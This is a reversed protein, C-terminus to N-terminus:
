VAVEAAAWQWPAPSKFIAADVEDMLAITDQLAAAMKRYQDLDDHTLKRGRRDKLWKDMPQYGGVRFEWVEPEIGDFYQGRKNNRPVNASIYVRGREVPASEGSPTQGPGYYKPYSKEVLNESNDGPVPFSVSSQGSPASELLHAETLKGGLDVLTRFLELDDVPPVRPFDARLFQDYRQRYAPSHFVAYIYYFVDEPGFTERLDGEGDTIFRLGLRRELDATFRPDLNPQRDGRRYLGQEISQESPYTYLPFLYNVEKLSVSHHQIIHKSVFIHQLGDQIEISRTTSLAINDGELMCRMVANAPRAMFGNSNGTYYTYRTDFPRYQIPAISKDSIERRSLDTQASDVRWSQSDNGLNYKRRAEDPPLSVFDRVVTMVDNSSWQVTLGDRGTVIGVSKIPMIETIRPWQEYEARLTDDWPKFRYDPSEPDLVTWATTSIDSASLSEYKAEREGYLESHRVVAPGSKDPEKVFIAIAVGQQIDFVNEDAGGDPARERIRSNGHLDLLYIDTFTDMLQQRMGRFTPNDLYGHNTVFALIGAGTKHIRHQGFRIFKVYDDQLWKPQKEGLGKGDVQKYDEILEGIWTLKGGKRSVNASHGSYPPNGLVVMIPMDRKIQAASNAEDTIIRYSGSMPVQMEGEELSNTLYIGLRESNAFDYVWDQRSEAPLDQGALQMGLKLHAMAYPAMLLEFGFLRPLLHKKVYGDWMGANNASRYHERIHDVVAYLFSGTGCAPDLVLVRHSQKKVIKEENGDTKLTEYTVQSYDALGDPCNFRERLLWDVSRVIYSVVPEPTYYVGRRERLAPDYAALFTEYFHLVPDQRAARKGFNALIADMDANDLLLALDNLFGAFPEKELEPGPVAYFVNRIFPNTAPIQGAADQWRFGGSGHNVRAAFLGYALTQAFMDAFEAETLDPILVRKSETFLDTVYTSLELQRFGAEVVDRILHTLRSMRRALEEPSTVPEPSRQLFDLLLAETEAIGSNSVVLRGNGDLEALRATSHRQGEVYWRFEIYDTLLLNPLSERYRKFQRGNATSPNSRSGDDEIDALSVGIDKAEVYGFTLGGQKRSVSYDPAGCEVRRPENTAVIGDLASELLTELASRHTHETADGRSVADQLERIYERFVRADAM